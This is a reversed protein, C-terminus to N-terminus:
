EPVVGGDQVPRYYKTRDRHVHTPRSKEGKRPSWEVGDYGERYKDSVPKQREGRSM